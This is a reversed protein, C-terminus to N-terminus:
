VHARGIESLAQLEARHWLLRHAVFSFVFYFAGGLFSYLTHLLVEHPDLPVRMTLTMILLCAFGLLGGQKGFVTFMSFLFCLSPVVLWILLSHSSALGTLAATLSGLLIAALMGNTGYRRPGGPQDIIAVCAAGIAAIMGVSYMQLGGVLILAPLLVGIAQRLGGFFYHSYLFRQLQPIRTIM